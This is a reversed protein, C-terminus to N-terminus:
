ARRRLYQLMPNPAMVYDVVAPVIVTRMCVDWGSEHANRAGCRVCPFPKHGFHECCRWRLAWSVGKYSM